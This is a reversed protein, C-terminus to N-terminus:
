LNFTPLIENIKQDITMCHLVFSSYESATGTGILLRVIKYRKLYYFYITCADVVHKSQQSEIESVFSFDTSNYRMEDYRMLISYYIKLHKITRKLFLGRNKSIEKLICESSNFYIAMSKYTKVKSSKNFIRYDRDYNIRIKPSDKNVSNLNFSKLYRLNNARLDISLYNGNPLSLIESDFHVNEISRIRNDRLDLKKLRILGNFSGTQVLSILNGLLVLSELKELGYFSNDNIQYIYNNTLSLYELSIMGFFSFRVLETLNHSEIKLSKMKDLGFFAYPEISNISGFLTFYIARM